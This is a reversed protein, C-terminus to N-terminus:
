PRKGGELVRLPVEVTERGPIDTTIELYPNKSFQRVADPDIADIRVMWGGLPRAIVTADGWPRPKTAASLVKFPAVDGNPRLLVTRSCVPEDPAVSLVAPAISVRDEFVASVPLLIEPILKDDTRVTWTEAVAGLYGRATHARPGASARLDEPPVRKRADAVHAGVPPLSVVLGRRDEGVAVRFVPHPPPEVSVIRAAEAATGKLRLPITRADADDSVVGFAADRRDLALRVRVVVEIPFVTTGGSPSLTVAVTKSLRGGMGLPNLSVVFPLAAGPAIERGSIEEPMLCGCSARVSSVTQVEATGNTVAFSFTAPTHSDIVPLAWTRCCLVSTIAAIHFTKQM